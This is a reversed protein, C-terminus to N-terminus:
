TLAIRQRSFYKQLMQTPKRPLFALFIMTVCLVFAKKGTEPIRTFDSHKTSERYELPYLETTSCEAATRSTGPEFGPTGKIKIEFFVELVNVQAITSSSLFILNTVSFPLQNGDLLTTQICPSHTRSNSLWRCCLQTTRKKDEAHSTGAEFLDKRPFLLRFRRLRCESCSFSSCWLLMLSSNKKGNIHLPTFVPHKTSNHVVLLSSVTTPFDHASYSTCAAFRPTAFKTSLSNNPLTWRPM